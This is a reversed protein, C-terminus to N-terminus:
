ASSPMRSRDRCEQQVARGIEAVGSNGEIDVNEGVLDANLNIVGDSNTMINVSLGVLKVKPANLSTGSNGQWNVSGGVHMLEPLDVSGGSNAQADIGGNIYVLKPFTVNTDTNIAYTLSNSPNGLSIANPFNVTIGNNNQISVPGGILYAPVDWTFPIQLDNITLQANIEDLSPTSIATIAGEAQIVINGAYELNPFDLSTVGTGTTQLTGCVVKVNANSIDGSGM